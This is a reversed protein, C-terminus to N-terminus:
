DFVKLIVFQHSFVPVGCEGSKAVSALSSSLNEFKVIARAGCTSSENVERLKFGCDTVV